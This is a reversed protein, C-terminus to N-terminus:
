AEGEKTGDLKIGNEERDTPDFEDILDTMVKRTLKLGAGFFAELVRM